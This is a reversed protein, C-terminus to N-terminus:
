ECNLEPTPAHFFNQGRSGSMSMDKEAAKLFILYKKFFAETDKAVDGGLKAVNM